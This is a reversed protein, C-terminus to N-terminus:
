ASFYKKNWIAPNFNKGMAFAYFIVVAVVSKFMFFFIILSEIASNNKSFLGHPILLTAVYSVVMAVLLLNIVNKFPWMLLKRFASLDNGWKHILYYYDNGIPAFLLPDDKDVLKFLKSPAIIKFNKIEINHSKELADIKQFAAEPIEGKFYKTDLFRLRYDICINKIQDLHYIADTELLDFDFHNVLQKNTKSINNKIRDENSQHSKLIHNVQDLMEIQNQVRNKEKRLQTELNTKEFFM